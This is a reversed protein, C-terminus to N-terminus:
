LTRTGFLAQRMVATAAEIEVLAHITLVVEDPVGLLKAAALVKAREKDAYVGDAASMQVAHYILSPAPNWTPVDTVIGTLLAPLDAGAFDYDAYQAVIEDPAGFKSQHRVLWDLEKPSVVGDAGAIALLAHGYQLMATATASSIGYQTRAHDSVGILKDDGAPQNTTTM